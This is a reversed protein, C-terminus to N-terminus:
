QEIKTKLISVIKFLAAEQSVMIDVILHSFPKCMGSVYLTLVIRFCQTHSSDKREPTKKKCLYKNIQSCHYLHWVLISRLVLTDMWYIIFIYSVVLVVHYGYYKDVWKALICSYFVHNSLIAMDNQGISELGLQYPYYSTWLWTMNRLKPPLFLFRKFKTIVLQNATKEQKKKMTRMNM